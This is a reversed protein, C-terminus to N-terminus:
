TNDLKVSGTLTNIEDMIWASGGTSSTPYTKRSLYAFPNDYGPVGGLPQKIRQPLDETVKYGSANSSMSMNCTRFDSNARACFALTQVGYILTNADTPTVGASYTPFGAYTVNLRNAAVITNDWSGTFPIRPENQSESIATFMSSANVPTYGITADSGDVEVASSSLLVVFTEAPKTKHFLVIDDIYVENKNSLPDNFIGQFLNETQNDGRFAIGLNSIGERAPANGDRMNEGTVEVLPVTSSGMYFASRGGGASSLPLVEWVAWYWKDAQIDFSGTYAWNVSNALTTGTGNVTRYILINNEGVVGTTGTVAIDLCVRGQQWHNANPDAGIHIRNPEGPDGYPEATPMYKDAGDVARGNLYGDGMWVKIHGNSAPGAMGKSPYYFAFGLYATSGSITNQFGNHGGENSNDIGSGTRWTLGAKCRGVDPNGNYSPARPSWKRELGNYWGGAYNLNDPTHGTQFIEMRLAGTLEGAASPSRPDGSTSHWMRWVPWDPETADINYSAGDWGEMFIIQAPDSGTLIAM